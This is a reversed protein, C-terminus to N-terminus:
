GVIEEKTSQILIAILSYFFNRWMDVQAKNEKNYAAIMNNLRVQEIVREEPTMRNNLSQYADTYNSGAIQEIWQRLEELKMAAVIRMHARVMERIEKPLEKIIDDILAM